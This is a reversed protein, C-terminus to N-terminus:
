ASLDLDRFPTVDPPGAAFRWVPSVAAHDVSPLALLSSCITQFGRPTAFCMAGRWEAGDKRGDELSGGPLGAGTEHSALLREWAEWDGAEPDPPRADRFRPRHVHIRSDADDDLDLATVMSLGEPIAHAEIHGDERGAHRLWWADQNDAIVMNFPRYARGDLDALAEAAASADSHDLADLVLEGRTRMGPKPGLTGQRNLIAAVVGDDNLGMWTGGALEDQGAVVDARDPWHRAPPRWPRDRMEDRNAAMVLPWPHNPRRLLVVTCM